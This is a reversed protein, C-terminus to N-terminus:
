KKKKVTIKQLVVEMDGMPQYVPYGKVILWPRPQYIRWLPHRPDFYYWTVENAPNCHTPDQIFRNNCGYPMSISLIGQAKTIRWIENMVQLVKKPDLHEYVHSM